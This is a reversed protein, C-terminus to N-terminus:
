GPTERQIRSGFDNKLNLAPITILAIMLAGYLTSVIEALNGGARNDRNESAQPKYM